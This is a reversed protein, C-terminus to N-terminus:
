VRKVIFLELFSKLPLQKTKAALIEAEVQNLANVYGLADESENNKSYYKYKM